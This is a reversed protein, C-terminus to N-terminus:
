RLRIVPTQWEADKRNKRYARQMWVFFAITGIMLAFCLLVGWAQRDMGHHIVLRRLAEWLDDHCRWLLLGFLCTVKFAQTGCIIEAKGSVWRSRIVDVLWYVFAQM